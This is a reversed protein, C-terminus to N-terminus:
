GENVFLTDTLPDYGFYVVKYGGYSEFYMKELDIERVAYATQSPIQEREKIEVYGISSVDLPRWGLPRDAPHYRNDILWKHIRARIRNLWPFVGARPFRTVTRPFRELPVSFGSPVSVHYYPTPEVKTHENVQPYQNRIYKLAAWATTGSSARNALWREVNRRM